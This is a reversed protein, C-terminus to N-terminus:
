VSATNTSDIWFFGLTRRYIRRVGGQSGVARLDGVRRQARQRLRSTQVQHRRRARDSEGGRQVTTSRPIRRQLHRAAASMPSYGVKWNRNLDVENITKRLCGKGQEVAIRSSPVEVPIMKIVAQRIWGAWSRIDPPDLGRMPPPTLGLSRAFAVRSRDWADYEVDEGVLVRALWLALEATIIERAHEGFVLMVRAKGHDPVSFDTITAVDVTRGGSEGGFGPTGKDREPQWRMLNPNNSAMRTFEVPDGGDHPVHEM